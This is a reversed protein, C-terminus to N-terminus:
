VSIKGRTGGMPKTEYYTGRFDRGILLVDSQGMLNRGNLIWTWELDEFRYRNGHFNMYLAVRARSETPPKSCVYNRDFSHITSDTYEVRDAKSAGGLQFCGSLIRDVLFLRELANYLAIRCTYVKKPTLVELNSRTEKCSTRKCNNWSTLLPLQVKYTFGGVRAVRHLQFIGTKAEEKSHPDYEGSCTFPLVVLAMALELLRTAKSSDKDRSPKGKAITPCLYHM